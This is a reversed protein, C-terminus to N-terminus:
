PTVARAFKRQAPAPAVIPRRGARCRRRRTPDRCAGTTARGAVGILLQVIRAGDTRPDATDLEFRSIAARGANTDVLAQFRWDGLHFTPQVGLDLTWRPSNFAPKGACDVTDLTASATTLTCGTLPPAGGTVPM